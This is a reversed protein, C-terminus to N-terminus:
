PEVDTSCKKPVNDLQFTWNDDSFLFRASPLMKKEPEDIYNTTNIMQSVVELRGIANARICGWAKIPQPHNITPTICYPRYEEKPRRAVYNNGAYNDIIFISKESFRVKERSRLLGNLTFFTGVRVVTEETKRGVFAEKWGQM